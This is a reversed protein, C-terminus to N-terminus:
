CARFFKILWKKQNLQSLNHEYNLRNDIKKLLQEFGMKNHTLGNAKLVRTILVKDHSFLRWKIMEIFNNRSDMANQLAEQFRGLDESKLTMELGTGAFCVLINKEITALWDYNEDPIQHLIKRFYQHTTAHDINSIFKKLVSIKDLYFVLSDYDPANSFVTQCKETFNEFTLQAEAIVNQINKLDSVNLNSFSGGWIWFYNQQKYKLSYTLYRKLEHEFEDVEPWKFYSLSTQIPLFLHHPNSSLYLEKISKGCERDDFLAM